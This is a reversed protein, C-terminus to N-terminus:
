AFKNGLPLGNRLFLLPSFLLDLCRRRSGLLSWDPIRDWGMLQMRAVFVVLATGALARWSGLFLYLFYLGGRVGRWCSAM